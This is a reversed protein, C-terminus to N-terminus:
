ATARLTRWQRAFGTWPACSAVLEADQALDVDRLEHALCVSLGASELAAVTDAGTTPQSMPVGSVHRAHGPERLALGWWGGDTAPGVVADADALLGALRRLDTATVQPTDMGIQVVPGPVRAHANALREAFSAGVQEFVDWGSVEARIEEARLGRELSGSLALHCRNVSFASACAAVTDLLAAASLLAAAHQGVGAALRTKSRGPEPAKAVVLGRVLGPEVRVATM